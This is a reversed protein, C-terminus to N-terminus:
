DAGFLPRTARVNGSEIDRVSVMVMAGASGESVDVIMDRLAGYSWPGLRSTAFAIGELTGV